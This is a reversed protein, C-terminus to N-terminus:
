FIDKPLDIGSLESSLDMGSLKSVYPNIAIHGDIHLGSLKSVLLYMQYIDSLDAGSLQSPPIRSAELISLDRGSAITDADIILGLGEVRISNTMLGEILNEEEINIQETWFDEDFAGICAAPCVTGFAPKTDPTCKDCVGAVAPAVLMCLALGLIVMHRVSRMMGNIILM